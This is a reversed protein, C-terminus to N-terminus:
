AEEKVEEKYCIWNRCGQDFEALNRHYESDPFKGCHLHKHEDQYSYACNQCSPYCWLCKNLDKITAFDKPM